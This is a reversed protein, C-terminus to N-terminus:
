ERDGLMKITMGTAAQLELLKLMPQPGIQSVEDIVLVTKRDPCFEGREIAKLFPHLASTEAIDADKLADAQRWATSVGVIRRGDAKWASVLPRLLTTKGSGAVGTLLTLRSGRGMAYIAATQEETFAIDDDKSAARM